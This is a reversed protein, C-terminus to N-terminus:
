NFINSLGRNIIDAFGQNFAEPIANQQYSNNYNGSTWRTGAEAADGSNQITQPIYSSTAWDTRERFRAFDEDSMAYIQNLPVHQTDVAQFPSDPNGRIGFQLGPKDAFWGSSQQGVNNQAQALHLQKNRMADQYQINYQSRQNVPRQSVRNTQPRQVCISTQAVAGNPAYVRAERCNGSWNYLQVTYVGGRSDMVQDENGEYNMLTADVRSRLLTGEAIHFTNAFVPTAFLVCFLVTITIKKM